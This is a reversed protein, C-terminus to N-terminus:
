HSTGVGRRHTCRGGYLEERMRSRGTFLDLATFASLSPAWSGEKWGEEVLVADGEEKKLALVVEVNRGPVRQPVVAPCLVNPIPVCM